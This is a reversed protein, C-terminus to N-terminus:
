VFVSESENLVIDEVRNYCLKNNLFIVIGGGSRGERCFFESNYGPINIYKSDADNLWTETIVIVDPQFPLLNLFMLEQYHQRNKISKINLHM